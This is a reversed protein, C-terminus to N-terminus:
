RIERPSNALISPSSPVLTAISARTSRVGGIACTCLATPGNASRVTPVKWRIRGTFNSSRSTAMMSFAAPLGILGYGPGFGGNGVGLYVDALATPLTFGLSHGAAVLEAATAPPFRPPVQTHSNDIRTARAKARQKIRAILDTDLM